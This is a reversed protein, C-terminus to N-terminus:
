ATKEAAVLADLLERMGGKKLNSIVRGPGEEGREFEMWYSLLKTANPVVPDSM